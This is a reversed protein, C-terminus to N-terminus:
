SANNVPHRLLTKARLRALLPAVVDCLPRLPPPPPPRRGVSPLPVIRDSRVLPSPDSEVRAIALGKIQVPRDSSVSASCVFWVSSPTAQRLTRAGSIARTASHGIIGHDPRVFVSGGASQCPRPTRPAEREHQQWATTASHSRKTHTRTLVLPSTAPTRRNPNSVSHEKARGYPEGMRGAVGRMFLGTTYIRRSRKQRRRLWIVMSPGKHVSCNTLAQVIRTKQLAAKCPAVRRYVILGTVCVSELHSVVSAYTLARM